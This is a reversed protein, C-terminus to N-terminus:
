VGDPRPIVCWVITPDCVSERPIVCRSIGFAEPFGLTEAENEPSLRRLSEYKVSDKLALPADFLRTSLPSCFASNAKLGIRRQDTGALATVFAALPRLSENFGHFQRHTGTAVNVLPDRVPASRFTSSSPSQM